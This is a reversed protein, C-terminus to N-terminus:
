DERKFRRMIGQKVLEGITLYIYNYARGYKILIDRQTVDPDELWEELMKQSASRRGWWFREYATEDLIEYSTKAWTKDFIRGM